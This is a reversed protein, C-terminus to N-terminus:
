NIIDRVGNGFEKYHKIYEDEDIQTICMIEDEKEDELLEDRINQRAEEKNYGTTYANYEFCECRM